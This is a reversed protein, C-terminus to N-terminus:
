SRVPGVFLRKFVLQTIHVNKCGLVNDAKVPSMDRPLYFVSMAAFSRVLLTYLPWPACQGQINSGPPITLRQRCWAAVSAAVGDKATCSSKFDRARHASRKESVSKSALPLSSATVNNREMNRYFVNLVFENFCIPLDDQSRPQSGRCRRASARKYKLSSM